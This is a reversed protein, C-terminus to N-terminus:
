KMEVQLDAWVRSKASGDCFKLLRLFHLTEVLLFGCLHRIFISTTWVKITMNLNRELVQSFALM